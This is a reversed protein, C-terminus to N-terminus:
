LQKELMNYAVVTQPSLRRIYRQMSARVAGRVADVELTQGVQEVVSWFQLAAMDMGAGGLAVVNLIKRRPTVVVECAAAMIITQGNFLALIFWKRDRVMALIDDVLFENHCFEIAKELLPRINQWSTEVEDPTM